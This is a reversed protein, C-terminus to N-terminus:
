ARAATRNAFKRGEARARLRRWAADSKRLNHGNRPMAGYPRRIPEFSSLEAMNAARTM